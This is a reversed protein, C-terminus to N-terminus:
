NLIDFDADQANEDSSSSASPGPGLNSNIRVCYSLHSPTNQQSKRKVRADFHTVSDTIVDDNYTAHRLCSAIGKRTDAIETMMFNVLSSSLLSRMGLPSHSLM